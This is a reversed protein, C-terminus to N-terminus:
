EEILCAFVERMHVYGSDKPAAYSNQPRSEPGLPRNTTLPISNRESSIYASVEKSKSFQKGKFPNSRMYKSEHKATYTGEEPVQVDLSRLATGRQSARTDEFLGVAGAKRSSPTFHRM